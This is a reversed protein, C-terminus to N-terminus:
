KKKEKLKTFRQGLTAVASLPIRIPLNGLEDPTRASKVYVWLPYPLQSKRIGEQLETFSVAQERKFYYRGDANFSYCAWRQVHDSAVTSASPPIPTAIPDPKGPPKTGKVTLHRPPTYRALAEHVTHHYATLARARRQRHSASQKFGKNPM